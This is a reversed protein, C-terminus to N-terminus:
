YIGTDLMGFPLSRLVAFVVINITLEFNGQFILSFTLAVIVLSYWRFSCSSGIQYILWVCSRQFIEDINSIRILRGMVRITLVSISNESTFNCCTDDREFRDSLRWANPEPLVVSVTDFTARHTNSVQDSLYLRYARFRLSWTPFDVKQSFEHHHIFRWVTEFAINM